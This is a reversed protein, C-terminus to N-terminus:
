PWWATTGAAPRSNPRPSPTPRGQGAGERLAAYAQAMYYSTGCGVVATREGAEPLQGSGRLGEALEAARSWSAPQSALEKQVFTM